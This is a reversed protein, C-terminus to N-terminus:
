EEGRRGGIRRDHEISIADLGVDRVQRAVPEFPAAGPGAALFEGGLIEGAFNLFAPRLGIPSRPVYKWGTGSTRTTVLGFDVSRAVFPSAPEVDGALLVEGARALRLRLEFLEVGLRDEDAM